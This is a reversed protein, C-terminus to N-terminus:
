TETMYPALTECIRFMHTCRFCRTAPVREAVRANQVVQRQAVLITCAAIRGRIQVQVHRSRPALAGDAELGDVLVIQAPM